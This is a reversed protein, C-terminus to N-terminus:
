HCSAQLLILLCLLALLFFHPTSQSTWLHCGLGTGEVLGGVPKLAQQHGPPPSEWLGVLLWSWLHKRQHESDPSSVQSSHARFYSLLCCAAPHLATILLLDLPGLHQWCPTLGTSM